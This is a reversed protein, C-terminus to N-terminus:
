FAGLQCPKIKIRLEECAASVRMRPLDLRRAIEWAAACPLSGNVLSKGIEDKLSSAVESAKQVAKKQPTYGFLGLQCEIINVNLVDIAVGVEKLTRGDSLSIEEARACSISNNATKKSIKQRLDDAVETQDPHKQNYKGKDAHTM